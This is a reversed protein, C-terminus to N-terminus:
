KVKVHVHPLPQLGEQQPILHYFAYQFNSFFCSLFKAPLNNPFKSVLNLSKTLEWQVPLHMQLALALELEM